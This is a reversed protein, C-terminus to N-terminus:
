KKGEFRVLNDELYEEVEFPVQLNVGVELSTIKTKAPDIKLDYCLDFLAKAADDASFFDSNDGRAYKHISGNIKLCYIRKGTLPNEKWGLWIILSRHETRRWRFGNYVQKGNHQEVEKGHGEVTRSFKFRKQLYKVQSPKLNPVYYSGGDFVKQLKSIRNM